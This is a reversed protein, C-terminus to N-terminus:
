RNVTRSELRGVDALEDHVRRLRRRVLRRSLLCGLLRGLLLPDVMASNAYSAILACPRRVEPTMLAGSTELARSCSCVRPRRGLLRDSFAAAPSSLRPLM